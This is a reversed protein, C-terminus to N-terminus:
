CGGHHRRPMSCRGCAGGRCFVGSADSMIRGCANREVYRLWTRLHGRARPFARFRQYLPRAGRFHFPRAVSYHTHTLWRVFASLERRELPVMHWHTPMPVVGASAHADAGYGRGSASERLRMIPRSRVLALTAMRTLVHYVLRRPRSRAHRPYIFHVRCCIDVDIL